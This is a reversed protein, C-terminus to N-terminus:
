DRGRRQGMELFISFCESCPEQLIELSQLAAVAAAVVTTLRRYM